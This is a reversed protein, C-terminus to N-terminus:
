TDVSRHVATSSELLPIRDAAAAPIFTTAIGFRSNGGSSSARSSVVATSVESASSRVKLKQDSAESHKERTSNPELKGMELDIRSVISVSAGSVGPNGCRAVHIGLGASASNPDAIKM